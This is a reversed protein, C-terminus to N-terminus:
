AHKWIVGKRIRDVATPTCKFKKAIQGATGTELKILRATDANLAQIERAKINILGTNWAHDVNEKATSWELNSLDYNLKNGDIHNVQPKNEPNPIFAIALLRHLYKAKGKIAIAPYEPSLFIKLTKQTKLNVVQGNEFLEYHGFIITSQMAFIRFAAVDRVTM